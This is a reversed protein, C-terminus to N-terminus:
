TNSERPASEDAVIGKAASLAAMAAAIEYLAADGEVAQHPALREVRALTWELAERMQDFTERPITITTM